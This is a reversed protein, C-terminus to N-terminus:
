NNEFLITDVDSYQQSLNKEACDGSIQHKFLNEGLNWGTILIDMLAVM